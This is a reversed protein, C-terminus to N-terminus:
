PITSSTTQSPRDLTPEVVSPQYTVRRTEVLSSGYRRKAEITLTSVGRSVDLILLFEGNQNVVASRGNVAVSATPDTKGRIVVHPVDLQLGETPSIIELAPADQLARGQWVIYGAALGVLVFFGALAIARSTVFFDRRRVTQRVQLAEAPVARKQELLERYKKLFYAPRGELLLVVVRVHREAYLPDTIDHIREEELATLVSIHIRTCEAIEELRLGRLERLERLDHGFGGGDGIAKRLFPM